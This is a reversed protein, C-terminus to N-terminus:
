FVDYVFDTTNQQRIRIQRLISHRIFYDFIFYGYKIIHYVSIKNTQNQGM